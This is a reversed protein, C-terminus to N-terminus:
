KFTIVHYFMEVEEEDDGHDGHGHDEHGHDEHGHDGHGGEEEEDEM